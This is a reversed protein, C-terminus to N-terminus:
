VMRRKGTHVSIFVILVLEPSKVLVSLPNLTVIHNTGADRITKRFYTGLDSLELPAFNILGLLRGMNTLAVGPMPAGPEDSGASARPGPAPSNNGKVFCTRLDVSHTLVRWRPASIIASVISAMSSTIALGGKFDYLIRTTGVTGIFNPKAILLSFTNANRISSYAPITL